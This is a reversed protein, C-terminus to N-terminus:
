GLHKFFIKQLSDQSSSACLFFSLPVAVVALFGSGFFFFALPFLSCINSGDAAKYSQKSLKEILKTYKNNESKIGWFAFFIASTRPAGAGTGTATSSTSLARAPM